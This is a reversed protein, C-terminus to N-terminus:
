LSFSESSVLKLLLVVHDKFRFHKASLYVKVRFTDLSKETGGFINKFIERVNQVTHM